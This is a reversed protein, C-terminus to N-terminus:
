NTTSRQMKAKKRKEITYEDALVIMFFQLKMKNIPASYNNLNRKNRVM